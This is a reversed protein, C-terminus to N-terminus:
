FFMPFIAGKCCLNFPSALKKDSAGKDIVLIKKKERKM